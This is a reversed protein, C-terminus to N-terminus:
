GDESGLASSGGRGGAGCPGADELEGELARQYNVQEDFESGVWNPKDFIEFGMRGSKINGKAATVLRAKDLQAASVQIGTGDPTPQYPIQAQTLIQGTQRADEPDLDAYLTRWDPRMAYWLLGGTLAMILAGAAVAWGRQVPQMAAWRMRGFTWLAAVRDTIQPQGPKAPASKELQTGTAM